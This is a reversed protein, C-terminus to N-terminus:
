LFAKHIFKTFQAIVEQKLREPFVIMRRRPLNPPAGLQHYEFYPTPNFVRVYTNTIEQKFNDRLTGTRVLIPQNGFGLRAKEILTRRALAVWPDNLRAGEAPFNASFERVLTDGIDKLLPQPTGIRKIAQELRNIVRIDGDITVATAM